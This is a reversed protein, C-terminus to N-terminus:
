SDSNVDDMGALEAAAFALAMVKTLADTDLDAFHAILDDRLSELSSANEVLSKVSTLTANWSKGADQSLQDERSIQQDVSPSNEEAFAPDAAVNADGGPVNVQPDPTTMERVEFGDGYTETIYQLTPKFGLNYIAIDRDARAKLDEQQTVRRWVRPPNAGPFNYETIWRVVTNNLTGSLLDADAKSLELRVENHVAAQNSGLGSSKGSTTSNEGLVCVSMQDDMYKALREYFDGAATKNAEIFEIMSNDPITVAYEQSISLLANLLETKEPEGTGAPYKGVPLPQGFRDAFGLWFTIDQRKFFVPWFLRSGLGLGNPNGDKAGVSHVIFKRDPMLEGPFINGFTKLHLNFDYDFDFRRQDRPVIKDVYIRSGDTAWIIESVAFGKLIADLLDHTVKDFNIANLQAKVEEAAKKDRLSSTAPEVDWAYAVIAMKRKQLVAFCHPDREVEDYLKLGKGAGRSQLTDDHNRLVIGMPPNFIDTKAGALENFIIKAM